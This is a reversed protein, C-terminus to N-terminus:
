YAFWRLIERAVIEHGARNPHNQWSLLDTIDGTDRLHKKFVAFPDALGVSYESALKRVQGAHVGLIKADSGKPKDIVTIDMTPTLLIIKLGKRLAKEIMFRWSKEAEKLGLKRDNLCYDITLVRPNHTLVEKEFRRSGNLSNEGGIATVIVNIVSYPFLVKLSKHLLHPYANFTDVYTAAFYGAPVSHGHCLVNVSKNDPWAKQLETKLEKLYTRRGAIAM